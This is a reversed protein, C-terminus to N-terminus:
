RRKEWLPVAVVVNANGVGEHSGTMLVVVPAQGRNIAYKLTRYPAAQSGRGAEANDVAPAANKVHSVLKYRWIYGVAAGETNQGYSEYDGFSLLYVYAGAMVAKNTMKPKANHMYTVPYVGLTVNTLIQSTPDPGLPQALVFKDKCRETTRCQGGTMVVTSEGLVILSHDVRATASDRASTDSHEPDM